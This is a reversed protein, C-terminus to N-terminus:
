SKIMRIMELGAHLFAGSAYENSDEPLVVTPEHGVKQVSGLKGDANVKSVLRSWAKIVAPKFEKESLIGNNIGWAMAYCYLSSGSTEPDPYTEQDYLSSRWLGDDGQLHKLKKAMSVFQNVFKNRNSYNKPMNELVRALGALVWGNGRGWFIKKGNKETKQLGNLKPKYASDRYFLCDHDDYLYVSTEWWMKDMAKVYSDNGTVKSLMAYAPPAMFLADCWSWNVNKSWGFKEGPMPDKVIADFTSKAHAIMKEDRRIAYLQIYVQSVVQDDANRAKKGLEWNNSEGWAIAKSLYKSDGTAEYTAVVGTFFVGRIWGNNFIQEPKGNSMVTTNTFNNLQYDCVKKMIQRIDKKNLQPVPRHTALSVASVRFGCLMVLVTLLKLRQFAPTEFLVMFIFVPINDQRSNGIGNNAKTIM